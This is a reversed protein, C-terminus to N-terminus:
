SQYGLDQYMLLVMSESQYKLGNLQKSLYLQKYDLNLVLLYMRFANKEQLFNYTYIWADKLCLNSM